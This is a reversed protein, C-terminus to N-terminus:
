KVLESNIVIQSHSPFFLQLKVDCHENRKQLLYVCLDEDKVIFNSINLCLLIYNQNTKLASFTSGLVFVSRRSERWQAPSPTRMATTGTLPRGSSLSRTTRSWRTLAKLRSISSCQQSESPGMFWIQRDPCTRSHGTIPTM